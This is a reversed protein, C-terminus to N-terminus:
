LSHCSVELNRGMVAAHVLISMDFVGICRDYRKCLRFQMTAALGCIPGPKVVFNIFEAHSYEHGVWPAMDDYQTYQFEGTSTAICKYCMRISNWRRALSYADCAYVWDGRLETLTFRMEAGRFFVGRHFLENLESQLYSFIPWITKRYDVMLSERISFTLFRSTRVSMPAWLPLNITLCFLKEVFGAGNTYRASDGYIGVPCHTHRGPHASGWSFHMEAHTWFERLTEQTITVGFKSSFLFEMLSRVDLVAVPREVPGHIGEESLDVLTNITRTAKNACFPNLSKIIFSDCIVFTWGRLFITDYIYIRISLSKKCVCVCIYIYVM